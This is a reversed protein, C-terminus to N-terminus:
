SEWSACFDHPRVAQGACRSAANVCEWRDQDFGMLPRHERHRCAGCTAPVPEDVVVRALADILRGLQPASVQAHRPLRRAWEAVAGEIASRIPHPM